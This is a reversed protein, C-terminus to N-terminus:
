LVRASLIYLKLYEQCLVISVFEYVSMKWLYQLSFEKM